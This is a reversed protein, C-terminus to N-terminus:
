SEFGMTTKLVSYHMIGASTPILSILYYRFMHLGLDGQLRALLPESKGLVLELFPWRWYELCLTSGWGNEWIPMQGRRTPMLGGALGCHQLGM